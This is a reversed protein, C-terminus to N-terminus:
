TDLPPQAYTPHGNQAVLNMPNERETTDDHPNSAFQKAQADRETTDEHTDSNFM